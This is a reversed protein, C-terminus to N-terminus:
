AAYAAPPRLPRVAGDAPLSLAYVDVRAFAGEGLSRLRKVSDPSVTCCAKVALDGMQSISVAKTTYGVKSSDTFGLSNTITALDRRMKRMKNHGAELSHM